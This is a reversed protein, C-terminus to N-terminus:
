ETDPKVASLAEPDVEVLTGETTLVKVKEGPSANVRSGALLGAGALSVAGVGAGIRKLFRRRSHEPKENQEM